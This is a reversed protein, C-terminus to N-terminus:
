EEENNPSLYSTRNVVTIKKPSILPLKGSDKATVKEEQQQRKQVSSFRM